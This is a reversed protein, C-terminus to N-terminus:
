PVKRRYAITELLWAVFNIAYIIALAILGFQWNTAVDLLPPLKAIGLPSSGQLLSEAFPLQYWQVALLAALAVTPPLLLIGWVEDALGTGPILIAGLHYLITRNATRATPVRPVLLWLVSMVIIALLFVGLFQQAWIPLGLPLSLWYAWPDLVLRRFEQELTGFRLEVLERASPIELMPTGKRYAEHFAARFGQISSGLNQNAVSSGLGAARQYERESGANDGRAQLIVGLNNAAGAINSLRYAESAKDYNTELQLGIGRLYNASTEPVDNLAQFYVSGGATGQTLFDQRLWTAAQSSYQWVGLGLLSMILLVLLVLKETFTHYGPISHRLRQLPARGIAAFRGGFPLLDKTQQSWYKLLLVFQLLLFAILSVGVLALGLASLRTLGADGFRYVSGADLDTVFERIQRAEGARNQTELWAAYERFVAGTGPFQPSTDRLYTLWAEGRKPNKAKFQAQAEALPDGWFQLAKKSVAFGPDYGARAYELRAKSLAADAFEPQNAQELQKALQVFVYFPASIELSQSFLNKAESNQGTANLVAAFKAKLLPNTPDRQSRERWFAVADGIVAQRTPAIMTELLDASPVFVVREAIKGNELNFVEESGISHQVTIRYGTNLKELLKVRGSVYLRQAVKGSVVERALVTTGDQVWELQPPTRTLTASQTGSKATLSVQNQIVKLELSFQGQDDAQVSSPVAKGDPLLPLPKTFQLVVTATPKFGQGTLTVRGDAPPLWPSVDLTQALSSSGCLLGILVILHRIM